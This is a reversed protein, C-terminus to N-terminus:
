LANNKEADIELLVKAFSYVSDENGNEIFKCVKALPFSMSEPGHWLIGASAVTYGFKRISESHKEAEEYSVWHIEKSSHKRMVEGVYAGCRLVLRLFDNGEPTNKHIYELYEDIHRLSELSFDLKKPNLLEHKFTPNEEDQTLMLSFDSYEEDAYRPSKKRFLSIM